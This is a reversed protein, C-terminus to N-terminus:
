APEHSTRGHRSRYDSPSVGAVKHFVRNFYAYEEYGVLSAVETLSLERDRIYEEAKEIRTQAIAAMLNLGTVQKFAKSLYSGDVRFVQALTSLSLNECYKEAIYDQVKRVTQKMSPSTGSAAEEIFVEDIWHDLLGCVEQLDRTELARGLLGQFSEFALTSRTASRSQAHQFMLGVLYEATQKVEVVLWDNANRLGIRDFVLERVLSKDETDVALVLLRGFEPTLRGHVDRGLDSFRVVRGPEGMRRSLLAAQVERYAQILKGFAYFPPSVAVDVRSGTFRELNEALRASLQDVGAADRDTLVLFENRVRLNHFVITKATGSAERLVLAKVRAVLAGPKGGQDRLVKPLDIMKVLILSFVALQFDFEPLPNKPPSAPADDRLLDSLAEDRLLETARQLTATQEQLEQERTVQGQLNSIARSIVPLLAERTVPKLLYDIAGDLLAQRVYDFDAYGSLVVIQLAPLQLKAARILENGNLFPMDIDTILIQPRDATVRALASEGDVAPELVEFGGETALLVRLNERVWFEDDAILIRPRKM